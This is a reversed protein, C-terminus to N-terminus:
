RSPKTTSRQLELKPYWYRMVDWTLDEEIPVPTLKRGKLDGDMAVGAVSWATDTYADIFAAGKRGAGRATRFPPMLDVDIRRDFARAFGQPDRFVFVPTDGANFNIPNAGLEQPLV